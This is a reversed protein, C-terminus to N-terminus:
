SGDRRGMQGGKGGEKKREKTREMGGSPKPTGNRILKTKSM